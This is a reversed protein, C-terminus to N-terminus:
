LYLRLSFYIIFFTIIMKIHQALAMATEACSECDVVDVEVVVVVVVVVFGFIWV